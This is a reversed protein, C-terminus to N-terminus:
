PGAVRHLAAAIAAGIAAPLGLTALLRGAGSAGEVQKRIADVNGDIKGVTAKVAALETAAAMGAVRLDGVYGELRVIRDELARVKEELAIAGMM